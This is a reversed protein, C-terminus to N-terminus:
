NDLSHKKRLKRKQLKSNLPLNSLERSLRSISSSKKLKRDRCTKRWKKSFLKLKLNRNEERLLRKNCSKRKKPRQRSTPSNLLKFFKPRPSKSM